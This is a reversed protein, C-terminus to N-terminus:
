IEDINSNCYQFDLSGSIILQKMNFLYFYGVTQLRKETLNFTKRIAWFVFIKNRSFTTQGNLVKRNWLEWFCHLANQFQELAVIKEFM